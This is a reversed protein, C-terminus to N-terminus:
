EGYIGLWRAPEKRMMKHRGWVLSQTRYDSKFVVCYTVVIYHKKDEVKVIHTVQEGTITSVISHRNNESLWRSMLRSEKMKANGLSRWGDM